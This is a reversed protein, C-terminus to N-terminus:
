GRRREQTGPAERLEREIAPCLRVLNGKTICDQAGARMVEVAVDEGIHGSVIIFPLDLGSEGLVGLAAPASLRPMEHDSIVVDWRGGALANEMAEPTEVREFYAEYGGSRLEHLLLAADDPSDEVVLVRLPTKAERYGRKRRGVTVSKGDTERKLNPTMRSRM